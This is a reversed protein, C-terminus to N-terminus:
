KTFVFLRDNKEYYNTIIINKNHFRDLIVQTDIHKWDPAENKNNKWFRIDDFIFISKEIKYKLIVDLEELLPVLEKKNWSSDNGSVHADIFFVASILDLSDLIKNLLDVSNGLLFTIRDGTIEKSAKNKSYLYLPEYIETTFVREFYKSALISSEGKYTGTEIFIKIDHYKLNIIEDENLSGGM